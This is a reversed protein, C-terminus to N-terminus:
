NSLRLCEKLETCGVGIPFHTIASRHQKPAGVIRNMAIQSAVERPLDDLYSHAM